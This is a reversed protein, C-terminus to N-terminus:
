RLAFRIPITTPGGIFASESRKPKGALVVASLRPILEEFFIRMELRALYQGLCVHNGAGFAMHRSANRDARFQEPQEFATEDYNASLYSLMLWDGKRIRRGGVETNESASRMFHSVPSTWRIAEDVFKDILEPRERIRPLEHPHQALGWMAGSTSLSTTDHGATVLLLYLCFAEFRPIPAGDISASAIASALDGAPQRRRADTLRAFYDEMDAYAAELQAILPGEQKATDGHTMRLMLEEDEAPIGVLKMLVRLPYHLAVDRVFDCETGLATMHDISARAIARIDAEVERLKASTFWRQIVRRYGFHNPGDMSILTRFVFPEGTKARMAAEGARDIIGIPREGNIFLSNQRSVDYVDRHRTVLWFPDYGDAEVLGVTNNARLWRLDALLENREAHARPSVVAEAIHKPVAVENIM